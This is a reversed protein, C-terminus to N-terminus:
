ALLVKVSTLLGFSSLSFPLSGGLMQPQRSPFIQGMGNPILIKVKGFSNVTSCCAPAWFDWHTSLFSGLMVSSSPKQETKKGVTERRELVAVTFDMGFQPDGSRCTGLWALGEWAFGATDLSPAWEVERLSAGMNRILPYSDYGWIAKMLWSTTIQWHKEKDCNISHNIIQICHWNGAVAWM